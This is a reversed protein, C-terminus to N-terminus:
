AAKKFKHIILTIQTGNNNEIIIEAGLKQKFAQILKNGFSKSNLFHESNIGKGNDQIKLILTSNEEKLVFNIKGSGNNETFAHKLANSILENVILGLPVMTEVDLNLSSVDKELQISDEQINYSDFLNEILDEFYEKCNIGTLNEEQYLNQHILAMSSVRNKGENIAELAADDFIYNSQLNLLSSVVQLNNKVRHHIERLLIDKDSLAANLKIQQETIKKNKRYLTYFFFSLFALSLLSIGLIKQSTNLNAKAVEAEITLQNIEANKINRDYQQESLFLQNITNAKEMSDRYTNLQEFYGISKQYNGEQKEIRAKIELYSDRDIWDIQSLSIDLANMIKKARSPNNADLYYKAVPHSASYKFTVSNIDELMAELEQISKTYLAMDCKDLAYRAKHSLASAIQNTYNKEVFFDLSEQIYALAKDYNKRTYELIAKCFNIQATTRKDSKNAVLSEANQIYEQALSLHRMSILLRAISLHSAVQMIPYSSEYELSKKEYEFAQAKRNSRKYYNVLNNYLLMLNATDKTQEALPLVKMTYYQISDFNIQNYCKGLIAHIQIYDYISCSKDLGTKLIKIAKLWQNKIRWLNGRLNIYKCSLTDNQIFEGYDIGALYVSDILSMKGLGYTLSAYLDFFKEAQNYSMKPNAKENDLTTNTLMDFAEQQKGDKYLKEAEQFVEYANQGIAPTNLFLLFCIIICFPSTIFGNM